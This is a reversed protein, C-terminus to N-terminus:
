FRAAAQVFGGYRETMVDLPQSGARDFDPTSREFRAHGTTAMRWYRAGFGVSFARTVQYSLIAELQIGSHGTGDQPTPGTFDVQDIRLWHSDTGSLATYALWAAEATLTLRDTLMVDGTLGLRLSHWQSKQSIMQVTRGLDNPPTCWDLAISVCGMGNTREAYYHYGVFGGLRYNSGRLFTYGIDASVYGLHGNRQDSLTASYPNQFPPFDEDKLQGSGLKGTGAFGKIFWGSPTHDIRFFTEAALGSLGGYALRSGLDSRDYIHLDNRTSGTSYWTRLGTEVTFDSQPAATGAAAAPGFRYNLGARVIHGALGLQAHTQRWSPASRFGVVTTAGLNYHLYELRASLRDTLVYEIGAGAAWGVRLDRDSGSYATGPYTLSQSSTVRGYALGGTLYVLLRDTPTVGFRVRTTGFWDLRQRHAAVFPYGDADVGSAGAAATGTTFSFDQEAGVVFSGFQVNTGLQGGGIFGSSRAAYGAPLAPEWGSWYGSPFGDVASRGQSFMGGLHIGLYPGTWSTPAALPQLELDSAHARLSALTTGLTVLCLAALRSYRM